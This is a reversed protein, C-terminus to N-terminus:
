TLAVKTLDEDLSVIVNPSLVKCLDNTYTAVNVHVTIEWTLAWRQILTSGGNKIIRHNIYIYPKCMYITERHLHGGGNKKQKNKSGHIELM